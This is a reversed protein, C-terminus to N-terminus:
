LFKESYPKAFKLLKVRNEVTLPVYEEWGIHNMLAPAWPPAMVGKELMIYFEGPGENLFRKIESESTFSLAEGDKMRGYLGELESLLRVRTDGEIDSFTAARTRQIVEPLTARNHCPRCSKGIVAFAAQFDSESTTLTQAVPQSESKPPTPECASLTLWGLFLGLLSASYCWTPAKM